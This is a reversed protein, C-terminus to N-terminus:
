RSPPWALEMPLLLPVRRGSAILCCSTDSSTPSVQTEISPPWWGWTLPAQQINKKGLQHPLFTCHGWPLLPHQRLGVHKPHSPLQAPSVGLTM